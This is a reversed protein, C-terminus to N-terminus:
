PEPATNIVPAPTETETEAKTIQNEETNGTPQALEAPTETEVVAPAETEVVTSDEVGMRDQTIEAIPVIDVAISEVAPPELSQASGVGVVAIILLAAHAIVSTSVGAKM